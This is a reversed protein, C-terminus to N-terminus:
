SEGRALLRRHCQLPFELRKGGDSDAAFRDPVDYWSCDHSHDFRLLVNFTIVAAPSGRCSLLWFIYVMINIVPRATERNIKTIGKYPIPNLEDICLSFYIKVNGCTVLARYIINKVPMDLYVGLAEAVFLGLHGLNDVAEGCHRFHPSVCPPYVSCITWYPTKTIRYFHWDTVKESDWFTEIESM